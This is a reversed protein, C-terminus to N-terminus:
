INNVHYRVKHVILASNTLHTCECIIENETSFNSTLCGKTSWDGNKSRFIFYLEIETMGKAPRGLWGTLSFHFIQRYCKKSKDYKQHLVSLLSLIQRHFRVQQFGLFCM